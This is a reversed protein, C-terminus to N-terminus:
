KGHYTETKFLQHSVSRFFCNGDGVISIVALGMGALRTNLVSISTESNDPGPNLEVDGCMTLSLVKNSSQRRKNCKNTFGANVKYSFTEHKTQRSGSNYVYLVYQCTYQNHYSTSSQKKQTENTSLLKECTRLLKENCLGGNQVITCSGHDLDTDMIRFKLNELHRHALRRYAVVRETM